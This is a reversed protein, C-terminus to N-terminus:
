FKLAALARTFWSTPVGERTDGTTETLFKEDNAPISTKPNAITGITGLQEGPVTYIQYASSSGINVVNKLKEISFITQRINSNMMKGVRHLM